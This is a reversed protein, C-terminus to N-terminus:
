NEHEYGYTKLEKIAIANAENIEKAARKKHIGVSKCHASIFRKRVEQSFEGGLHEVAKRGWYEPEFMLDEYKLLMVRGGAEVEPRSFFVHCRKVMEKWMWVARVYPTCALFAEEEGGEIWWPVYRHDFKCGFVVEASDLSELKEDSLVDYTRVLSDACDRGDRYIHIIRSGPLAHYVFEPALAFFPEKYILQSIHRKHRMAQMLESIDMQRRLWQDIAHSRHSNLHDLYSDLSFQLGYALAGRVEETITQNVIHAVQLPYIRGVVSESKSMAALAHMLFTTGSRPCGLVMNYNTKKIM